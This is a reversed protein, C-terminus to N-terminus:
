GGAPTATSCRTPWCTRPWAGCGPRSRPSPCTRRFIGSWRWGGRRGAGRGRRRLEGALSFRGGGPGTRRQRLKRQPDAGDGARRPPPPPPRRRARRPPHAAYAEAPRPRTLAVELGTVLAAVPTRLEHSADALFQRRQAFAQELRALMENLRDAMPVLEPPLAAADIRRDLRRKDISGVLDATRRLPRLAAKSARYAIAAAVLGGALVCGGLVLALRDLLRHFAEASGTYTVLVPVPSGGPTQPKAFARVSVTRLRVGDARTAFAAAVLQPGPGAGADDPRITRRDVETRIVLRDGDDLAVPSDARPGSPALEPRAVARGVLADDLDALLLSRTTLYASVGGAILMAWVTLLIALTIRRTM